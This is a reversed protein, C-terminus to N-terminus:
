IPIIKKCKQLFKTFIVMGSKAGQNINADISDDDSEVDGNDTDTYNFCVFEKSNQSPSTDDISFSWGQDDFNHEIVSSNEPIVSSLKHKHTMDPVPDWITSSKLSKVKPIDLKYYGSSLKKVGTVAIIKQTDENCKIMETNKTAIILKMADRLHPDGGNLRVFDEILEIMADPKSMMKKTNMNSSRIHEIGQHHIAERERNIMRDGGSMDGSCKSIFQKLEKFSLTVAVEDTSHECSSLDLKHSTSISRGGNKSYTVMGNIFRYKPCLKGTSWKTLKESWYADNTYKKMENFINNIIPKESKAAFRSRPKSQIKQKANDVHGHKYIIDKNDDLFIVSM